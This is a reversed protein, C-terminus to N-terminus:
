RKYTSEEENKVKKLSRAFHNLALAVLFQFCNGDGLRPLEYPAYGHIRPAIVLNSPPKGLTRPERFEIETKKGLFFDKPNKLPYEWFFKARTETAVRALIELDKLNTCSKLYRCVIFPAGNEHQHYRLKTLLGRRQVGIAELFELFPRSYYFEFGNKAYFINASEEYIQRCTMAFGLNRWLRADNYFGKTRVHFHTSTSGIYSPKVFVLDYIQNRIEPAFRLFDIKYDCITAAQAANMADMTKSYVKSPSRMMTLYAIGSRDLQHVNAFHCLTLMPLDGM